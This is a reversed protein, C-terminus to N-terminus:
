KKKIIKTSIKNHLLLENKTWQTNQSMEPTCISIEMAIAELLTDWLLLILSVNETTSIM